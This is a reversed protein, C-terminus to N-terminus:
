PKDQTTISTNSLCAGDQEVGPEGVRFTISWDGKPADSEADGVDGWGRALLEKAAAVRAMETTGRSAVLRLAAIAERTCQRAMERATGDLDEALEAVEAERELNHAEAITRAMADTDDLSAARINDARAQRAAERLQDARRMTM